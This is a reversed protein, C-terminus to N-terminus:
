SLVVYPWNEKYNWEHVFLSDLTAGQLKHGTTATNSLVSFQHGKMEVLEYDNVAKGTRINTPFPLKAHFRHIKSIIVCRPPQIRTNCHQLISQAVQSAMVARVSVGSALKILTPMEGSKLIV